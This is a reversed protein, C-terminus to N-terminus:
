KMKEMAGVLRRTKAMDGGRREEPFAPAYRAMEISEFLEEFEALTDEGAGTLKEGLLEKTISPATLNWRDALYGRLAMDLAAYFEKQDKKKEAEDLKKRAIKGAYTFRTLGEDSLIRERRKILYLGTFFSPIPLVLILWFWAQKYFPSSYNELTVMDPKIYRMGQRARAIAQEGAGIQSPGGTSRTITVKIPATEKEVYKGASPDFWALKIAPLTKEGEDRPVLPYEIIRKSVIRGGTKDLSDMTKPEFAEFGPTQPFAPPTVPKLYGEGNVMVRFVLSGNVPATAPEVMSNIEYKGVMNTFGAPEGKKPLPKINISVPSTTLKMRDSWPDLSLYVKAPEIVHKGTTIPILAYRLRTVRYPKGNFVEKVNQEKEGAAFPLEEVWFGKFDPKIYQPQEWLETARYFSFTAIVQQYPVAEKKDVEMTIFLDDKEIDKQRGPFISKNFLKQFDLPDKQSMARNEAPPAKPDVIVAVPNASYKKGDYEVTAPPIQFTGEKPARITYVVTRSVKMQLNVIKVEQSGAKGLIEFDKLQPLVPEPLSKIGSGEVTVTLQFTEGPPLTSPNASATVDLTAALAFSPWWLGLILFAIPRM